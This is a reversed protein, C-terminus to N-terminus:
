SVIFTTTAQTAASVEQPLHLVTVLIALILIKYLITTQMTNTGGMDSGEPQMKETKAGIPDM